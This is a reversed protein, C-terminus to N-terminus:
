QPKPLNRASQDRSPNRSSQASPKQLIRHASKSVRPLSPRTALKTDHDTAERPVQQALPPKTNDQGSTPVIPVTERSVLEEDVHESLVSYANSLMSISGSKPEPTHKAPSCSMKPTIWVQTDDEVLRQKDDETPASAQLEETVSFMTVELAPQSLVESQPCEKTCVTTDESSMTVQTTEQATVLCTDTSHGWKKCGNCRPPLWPYSYRIVADLEGEETGKIVFETPLDKTLDADM